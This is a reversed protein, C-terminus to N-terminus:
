EEKTLHFFLRGNWHSGTVAKAVASLSTFVTGEFDFGIALVTVQITRGKYERTLLTGAMLMGSPGKLRGTATQQGVRVSPSPSKPVTMRIDADNGLEAARRKARESLDGEAQAQLRWGIRKILYEKNGTRTAEGFVELHKNRLEAPGMRQLDALVKGINKM